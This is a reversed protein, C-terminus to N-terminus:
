QLRSAFFTVRERGSVTLKILIEGFGHESFEGPEDQFHRIPRLPQAPFLNILEHVASEAGTFGREQLGRLVEMGRLNPKDRLM